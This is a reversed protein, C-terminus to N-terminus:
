LSISLPQLWTFAEIKIANRDIETRTTPKTTEKKIQSISKDEIKNSPTLRIAVIKTIRAQM